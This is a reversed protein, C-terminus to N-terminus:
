RQVAEPVSGAVRLARSAHVTGYVSQTFEFGPPLARVMTVPRPALAAAVEPLDTLRLVNLLAPGQWHSAPLDTLVVEDIREDFLAVYLALAAMPGKGHLFVRGEGLGAETLAWDTARLIDWVQMAAITRGVWVATRELDSYDGFSLTTETFRASVILVHCRGLLPLLEDLDSSYFPEGPEKAYILLPTDPRPTGPSFVRARIRVGPETELTVERYAAYRTGWGANPPLPQIAFPLRNTPFWGFVQNRLGAMLDSRRTAWAARSRPAKLRASSTFTHHIGPNVADRPLDPLCALDEPKESPFQGPDEPLESSDGLLWRNMWERSVKLFLPPDSHGADADVERIRDSNGAAFLDYVRKAHQYVPHYGDPPFITDRQGSTILLPRPAILAAVVPFDWRYTNHYYICDCQGRALWRAAQSGFTFTSCSPAAAAVRDDLAALYWTVAGGGSIGTVGLRRSDVERRTALWDIARMANWVEVGAPTYGLSLWNWMGLNHTGHHIGPVEGFELTDLVLVCYGNRAYWVTRDQYQTKAGQPHPSHGCLYLIAPVPQTVGRPVYFNGTVYLGPSSEFAVKEIRYESREMTGTVRARLPTRSPLPDIGLMYALQQRLIPRQRQWDDLSRIDELCRDSMAAALSKLQHIAAAHRAAADQGRLPSALLLSVAGLVLHARSNM